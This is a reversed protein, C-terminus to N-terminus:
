GHMRNIFSHRLISSFYNESRPPSLSAQPSTQTLVQFLLIVANGGELFLSTMELSQQTFFSNFTACPPGECKENAKQIIAKLNGLYLHSKTPKRGPLVTSNSAVLQSFAEHMLPLQKALAGTCFLTMWM